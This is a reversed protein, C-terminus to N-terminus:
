QSKEDPSGSNQAISQWVQPDRFVTGEIYQCTGCWNATFKVLVPKGSDRLTKFTEDSFTTWTGSAGAVAPQTLGTIKTAWRPVNENNGGAASGTASIDGGAEYVTAGNGLPRLRWINDTGNADASTAIAGGAALTTNAPTADVYTIQAQAAQGFWIVVGGAILIALAVAGPRGNFADM